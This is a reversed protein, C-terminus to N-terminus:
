LVEGFLHQESFDDRLVQFVAQPYLDVPTEIEAAGQERVRAPDAIPKQKLIATFATGSYEPYLDLEGAVLAQHCVFSGGLDLKRQVRLGARELAQAAIEGLIVQETFNKSGIRLARDAHSCGCLAVVAILAALSKTRDM